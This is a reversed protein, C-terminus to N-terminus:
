HKISFVNHYYDKKPNYINIDVERYNSNEISRFLVQLGQVEFKRSEVSFPIILLIYSDQGKINLVGNISCVHIFYCWSFLM